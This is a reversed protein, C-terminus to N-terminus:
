PEGYPSTPHNLWPLQAAPTPREGLHRDRMASIIAIDELLRRREAHLRRFRRPSTRPEWVSEFEALEQQLIALIRQYVALPTTEVPTAAAYAAIRQALPKM